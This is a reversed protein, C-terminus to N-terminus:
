QRRLTVGSYTLTTFTSNATFVYLTSSTSGYSYYVTITTGNARWNYTLTDNMIVTGDEKFFLKWGPYVYTGGAVSTYRGSSSSSSGGSSSGSGSSSSGSSSSSSSNSQRYYIIGMDYYDLTTFTSNATFRM